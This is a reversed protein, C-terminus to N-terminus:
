ATGGARELFLEVAWAVTEPRITDMCDWVPCREGICGECSPADADIVTVYPGRPRWRVPSAPRIPPFLAVVPTGVAAALHVPGTSAGVVAAALELVAALEPLSTRGAISRAGPADDAVRDALAREDASGTIAVRAGREMLLRALAAFHEVAWDRASGGSGPHLVVWPGPPGDLLAEARARSTSTPAIIPDSAATPRILPELLALNLELEHSGSGRRHVRVRENFLFSYARYATGIRRPIGALAVSLAVRVTPRLVVAVDFRQARLRRAVGLMGAAGADRAAADDVLVRDIWPHGDLLPAVLPSTLLTLTADPRADRLRGLVPLSLLVDGLRDTRTVLISEREARARPASM